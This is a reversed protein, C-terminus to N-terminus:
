SRPKGFSAAIKDGFIFGPLAALMGLLGPITLGYDFEPPNDDEGVGFHVVAYEGAAMAIVIFLMAIQISLLFRVFDRLRGGNRAPMAVLVVYVFLSLAMSITVDVVLSFRYLLMCEFIVLFISCVFASIVYIEEPIM